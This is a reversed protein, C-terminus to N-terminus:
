EEMEEDGGGEEDSIEVEEAESGLEERVLDTGVGEEEFGGDGDGGGDYEEEESGSGSGDSDEESGPDYDEEEDDERDELERQAKELETEEEDEGDAAANSNQQQSSATNVDFKKARRSAAMSADNLSHRKVYGDIGAFDAQDLMSFEFEEEMTGGVENVRVAINLNFTRHLVSTYSISSIAAFSFFLLPKKFGFLIGTSLFFLYGEKSGRFAKVHYATESKRHSERLTSAFETDSPTTVPLLTSITSHIVSEYTSDPSASPDYPILPPGSFATKPFTSPVTFLIPETTSTSQPSPSVSSSKPFIIFNTQKTAKEPVPLLFVHDIYKL